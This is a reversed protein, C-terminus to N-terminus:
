STLCTSLHRTTSTTAIYVASFKYSQARIPLSSFNWFIVNNWFPVLVIQIILGCLRLRLRIHSFSSYFGRTYKFLIPNHFSSITTM